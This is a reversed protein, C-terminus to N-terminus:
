KIGKLAKRIAVRDWSGGTGYPDSEVTLVGNQFTLGGDIVGVVIEKLNKQL